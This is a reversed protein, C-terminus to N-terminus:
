NGTFGSRRTPLFFRCIPSAIALPTGPIPGCYRHIELWKWVVQPFVRLTPSSIGDLRAQDESDIAWLLVNIPVTSPMLSAMAKFM